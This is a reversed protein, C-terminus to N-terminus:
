ESGFQKYRDSHRYWYGTLTLSHLIQVQPFWLFEKDHHAVLVFIGSGRKGSRGIMWWRQCTKLAVDQIRVYSSFTHELQDDQKQRVMHPPEYSYQISMHLNMCFSDCHCLSLPRAFVEKFFFIGRVKNTVNAHSLTNTVSCFQLINVGVKIAM